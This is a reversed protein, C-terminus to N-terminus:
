RSTLRLQRASQSVSRVIKLAGVFLLEVGHSTLIACDETATDVINYNCLSDRLTSTSGAGAAFLMTMHEVSYSMTRRSALGDQIEDPVEAIVDHDFYAPDDVRCHM